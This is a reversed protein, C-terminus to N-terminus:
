TQPQAIIDSQDSSDAASAKPRLRRNITPLLFLIAVLTLFISGIGAAMLLISPLDSGASALTLRLAGFVILIVSGNWLGHISISLLFAGALRWYRNELRASAIGWGVLGSATIHMLSSAARAAIGVGPMQFNGSAALTGELLAFGAGCLAGLAFGEAPSHLRRGLLWVAAPKLTEEIIPSLVAAFLLALILVLPNALYPALNTLLTQIDSAHAAQIRAQQLIGLWKPNSAAVFGAALVAIGMILLELVMAGIISGTMGIGFAAWLRRWSGAPLGGIAVWGLGAVPLAIGLLFFPLAILRNFKFQANLISGLIILLVWACVLCAVQWFKIPRIKAPRIEQGRLKRISLILLPLLLAACLFMGIAEFLSSNLDTVTALRISDFGMIALYIGLGALAMIGAISFVLLMADRRHGPTSNAQM